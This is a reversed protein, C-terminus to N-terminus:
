CRRGFKLVFTGTGVFLVRFLCSPLLLENILRAARPLLYKKRIGFTTGTCVGEPGNGYFVVAGHGLDKEHPGSLRVCDGYLMSISRPNGCDPDFGLSPSREVTLPLDSVEGRLELLETSEKLISFDTVVHQVDQMIRPLRDAGETLLRSKRLMEVYRGQDLVGSM